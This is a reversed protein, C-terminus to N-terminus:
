EKPLANLTKVEDPTLAFDYIGQNEKAYAAMARWMGERRKANPVAIPTM